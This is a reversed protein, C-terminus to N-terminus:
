AAHRLTPATDGFPVAFPGVRSSGVGDWRHHAIAEIICTAVAVANRGQQGSVRAETHTRIARDFDLLEHEIANIAPAKHETTVLVDTFLGGAVLRERQSATVTAVSFQRQLVQSSPRVTKASGTAFDFATYGDDSWCQMQRIPEPSVRAANLQAVCGNALTLQAAAVDENDGLVSLGQAAVSVVRSRTLSLVLDIDHIMLDMVVGIDISRFTFGSSRTAQIFRPPQIGGPVASLAPNFREVHGVQLVCGAAEAARVMRDAEEVSPAIPKEVLVHKGAELLLRATEAHTATPTAVVAADIQDLVAAVSEVAPAGTKEALAARSAAIPDIVAVLDFADLKAALNAHYGGLKGCGVVAIRTRAM